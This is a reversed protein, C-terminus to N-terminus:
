VGGGDFQHGHGLLGDRISKALPRAETPFGVELTEPEDGTHEMFFVARQRGAPYEHLVLEVVEAWAKTNETSARHDPAPGDGLSKSIPRSTRPQSAPVALLVAIMHNVKNPGTGSSTLTTLTDIVSRSPHIGLFHCWPCRM